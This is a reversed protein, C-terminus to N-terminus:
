RGDRDRGRLGERSRIDVTGSSGAPLTDTNVPNAAAASAAHASSGAQEILKDLPLYMLNSNAKGDIMVKTVNAYVQQM